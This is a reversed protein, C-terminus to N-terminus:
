EGLIFADLLEKAEHDHIQKPPHKSFYACVPIIPGGIGRDLAVKALRIMDAMVGGANASDNVELKVDVKLKNNGWNSGNIVIVGTKTDEQGHIYMPAFGWTVSYPLEAKLAATKTVEKTQGRQELNAFDTNGAFNYQYMRNIKIGRRILIDILARHIVTSGIQSKFDDGILPKGIESFKRAYETDCAIMEPIGNIFALGAELAADVYARTASSSGTPLINILIEAGSEKLINSIDVPPKDAVEVYEMLHEPVGDLLPGMQVIVGTRPVEEFKITCNPPAYIAESLDKGVKRADVDFACVVEIDSIQYGAIEPYLLGDTNTSHTKYYQIGQIFASACNGVGAIALKIKSM